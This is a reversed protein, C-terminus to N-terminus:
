TGSQSAQRWPGATVAEGDIEPALARVAVSQSGPDRAEVLALEAVTTLAGFDRPSGAAAAAAGITLALVSPGHGATHEIDLLAVNERILRMVHTLHEPRVDYLLIGFRAGELRAAIDLPRRVSNLIAHAIRRLDGAAVRAGRAEAHGDFGDVEALLLAFSKGERAGQRALLQYRRELAIRNPIGTASDNDNLIAAVQRELFTSRAAHEFRFVAVACVVNTVLLFAGNAAAEIAPMAAAAAAWQTCVLLPIACCLAALLRLGSLLYIYITVAHAALVVDALSASGSGLLLLILAVTVALASAQALVVAARASLTTLHGALAVLFAPALIGAKIWIAPQGIGGAQLRLDILAWFAVLLVALLVAPGSTRAAAVAYEGSFESELPEAFRLGRLLDRGSGTRTDMRESIPLAPRAKLGCM